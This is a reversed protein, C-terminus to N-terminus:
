AEMRLEERSGAGRLGTRLWINRAVWADFEGDRWWGARDLMRWPDEIAEIATKEYVNSDYWQQRVDLWSQLGVQNDILALDDTGSEGVFQNQHWPDVVRLGAHTPNGDRIQLVALGEGPTAEAAFHHYGSTVIRVLEDTSRDVFVITPEHDWLHNDAAVASTGLSKWFDLFSEQHSYRNWFYIAREDRDDNDAWWGFIGVAQELAAASIDFAPQWRELVSLDDGFDDVYEGPAPISRTDEASVVGTAGFGATIAVGGQLVARRSVPTASESSM